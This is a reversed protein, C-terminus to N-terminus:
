RWQDLRKGFNGLEDAIYKLNTIRRRIEDEKASSREIPHQPLWWNELDIGLASIESAMKAISQILDYGSLPQAVAVLSATEHKRDERLRLVALVISATICGGGLMYSDVAILPYDPHVTYGGYGIGLGGFFLALLIGVFTGLEM